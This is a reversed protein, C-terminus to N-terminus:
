WHKSTEAIAEALLVAKEKAELQVSCTQLVAAMRSVTVAGVQASSGKITHTATHAAKWNETAIAEGLVQMLLQVDDKWMARLTIVLEVPLSEIVKSDIEVVISPAVEAASACVRGHEKWAIRFSDELFPKAIVGNMGAMKIERSTDTDDDGTICIIPTECNPNSPNGRIQATAEIGSLEPMRLDLFIISFKRLLTAAVAPIGDCVSVIECNPIGTKLLHEAFMISTKADDALLILPSAPVSDYPLRARVAASVPIATTVSLSSDLVARPKTSLSAAWVRSMAEFLVMKQVPKMLFGQMLSACRQKAESTIDATVALVPLKCGRRRLLETAQIGDLVPMHLDMLILEIDKFEAEMQVAEVGNNAVLVKVDAASLLACMVMQNIANDEVVLVTKPLAFGEFRSVDVDFGFSHVPRISENAASVVKDVTTACPAMLSRCIMYLLHQQRIPKSTCATIGPVKSLLDHDIFSSLAIVVPMKKLCRMLSNCVEIGDMLPMHYDLLLLSFPQGKMESAQMENIGDMGLRFSAHMEVGCQQMLADLAMCNTANDDIIAVRLKRFVKMDAATLEFIAQPSAETSIKTDVVLHPAAVTFSFTSGRGLRSNVWLKGGMLEVLKKCIALGLGTGGYKRSTSLDAQMFPKFLNKQQEASLGIGTDNIDFQLVFPENTLVSVELSVEGLRTFKIGNGILNLLIQRLRSSDGVLWVPVEEKLFTALDIEQKTKDVNGSAIQMVDEIVSNLQFPIRELVLSDAEAKSFVLIDNLVNLLAESSRSCTEVFHRQTADLASAKLLSLMGFMGNLPTRIEHSMLALFQSKAKESAKQQTLDTLIGTFFHDDNSRVESVALQLAFITGDKKRGRVERGVGIIVPHNTRLYRRLYEDHEVSEPLTMLMTVNQNVMEERGYGFTKCAASNASRILGTPSITLMSLSSLFFGELLRKQSDVAKEARTEATMDRIVGVFFRDAAFGPAADAVNLLIPINAGSKAVAILRRGVGIISSNGSSLYNDIYGQHKIAFEPAMLMTISQGVFERQSYGFIKSAETNASRIVGQVTITFVADGTTCNALARLHEKDLASVRKQETLDTVDRLIGFFVTSSASKSETVLVEVQLETGNQHLAPFVRVKGVVRADRTKLFRAVYENHYSAHPEPMIVSINRGVVEEASGFGFMIRGASNLTLITGNPDMSIIADFSSEVLLAHNRTDEKQLTVDIAYEVVRILKGTSVSLIPTYTSQFFLEKANKGVRKFEGRMAIGENLAAWLQVCSESTSDEFLIQHHKGVIEALSYGVAMLYAENAGLIKGDMGFSMYPLTQRIASMESEFDALQDMEHTVDTAFEIIQVVNQGNLIPVYNEHLWL